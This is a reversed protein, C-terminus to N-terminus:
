DNYNIMHQIRANPKYHRVAALSLLFFFRMPSDRQIAGRPTKALSYKALRARKVVRSTDAMASSSVVGIARELVQADVDM